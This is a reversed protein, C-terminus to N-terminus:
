RRTLPADGPQAKLEVYLYEPAMDAGNPWAIGDAEIAVQAFVAEDARADDFMPGWLHPELDLEGTFGDDFVLRVVRDRVVTVDVVRPLYHVRPM